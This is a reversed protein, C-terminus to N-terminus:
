FVQIRALNGIFVQTFYKWRTTPGYALYCSGFHGFVLSIVDSVFFVLPVVLCNKENYVRLVTSDKLHKFLERACDASSNCWQWSVHLLSIKFCAMNTGWCRIHQHGSNWNPFLVKIPDASIEAENYLISM